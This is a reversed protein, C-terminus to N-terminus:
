AQELEAFELAAIQKAMGHINLNQREFKAELLERENPKWPIQGSMRLYWGATLNKQETLAANFKERLVQEEYTM